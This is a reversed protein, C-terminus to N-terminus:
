QTVEPLDQQAPDFTVSIADDLQLLVAAAKIPVAVRVTIVSSEEGQVPRNSRVSPQVRAVAVDGITVDHIEYTAKSGPKLNDGLHVVQEGDVRMGAFTMAEFPGGFMEAIRARNLHLALDVTALKEDKGTQTKRRQVNVVEATATGKINM